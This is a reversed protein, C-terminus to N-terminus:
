GRNFFAYGGVLLALLIPLALWALVATALARRTTRRRPGAAEVARDECSPCLLEGTAGGVCAECVFAGCRICTGISPAGHDACRAQGAELEPGDEGPEEEGEAAGGTWSALLTSAREHAAEPVLVRVDIVGGSISGLMAHHQEGQVVCPIGEAELRSRLAGAEGSDACSTLLVLKSNDAM